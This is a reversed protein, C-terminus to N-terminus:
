AEKYINCRFRDCEKYVLIATALSTKIRIKGELGQAIFRDEKTLPLNIQICKKLDWAWVFGSIEENLLEGTPMEIFVNQGLESWFPDDLKIQSLKQYLSKIKKESLRKM